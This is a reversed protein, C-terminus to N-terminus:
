EPREKMQSNFEVQLMLDGAADKRFGPFLQIQQLSLKNKNFTLIDFVQSEM